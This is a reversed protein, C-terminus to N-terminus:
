LVQPWTNCWLYIQPFWQMCTISCLLSLCIRAKFGLASMVLLGCLLPILHGWGFSQKSKFFINPFILGTTPPSVHYGWRRSRSKAASVARFTCYFWKHMLPLVFQVPCLHAMSSQLCYHRDGRLLNGNFLMCNPSFKKLFFTPTGAESTSFSYSPVWLNRIEARKLHIKKEGLAIQFLWFM